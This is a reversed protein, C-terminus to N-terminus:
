KKKKLSIGTYHTMTKMNRTSFLFNAMYCLFSKVVISVRHFLDSISMM